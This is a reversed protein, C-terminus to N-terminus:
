SIANFELPINSGSSICFSMDALTVPATTSVQFSSIGVIATNVSFIDTNISFINIKINLLEAIDLDSEQVSLDNLQLIFDEIISLQHSNQYSDFTNKNSSLNYDEPNSILDEWNFDNDDTEEQSDHDLENEVIDLTPNSEVEELIRKELSGLNLQMLNAEIIQKPNLKQKQELRQGIKSM